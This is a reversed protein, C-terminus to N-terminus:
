RAAGRAFLRRLGGRRVPAPEDEGEVPIDLEGLEAHFRDLLRAGRSPGGGNAADDPLAVPWKGTTLWHRSAGLLRDSVALIRALALGLQRADVQDAPVEAALVLREDEALSFKVFPYEDNWRLLQRYSRRFGDALPPAFQAWVLVALSPDVILTIRLEARRRGDLVLDFSTIGERDARDLPEIGLQALWAEVAAPDLAGGAPVAVSM